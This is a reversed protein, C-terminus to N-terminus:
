EVDQLDIWLGDCVDGLCVREQYRYIIVSLFRSNLYALGVALFEDHTGLAESPSNGSLSLHPQVLYGRYTGKFERVM